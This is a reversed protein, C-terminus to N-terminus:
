PHSTRLLVHAQSPREVAPEQRKSRPWQDAPFSVMPVGPLPVQEEWGAALLKRRVARMLRDFRRLDETRKFRVRVTALLRLLDTGDEQTLEIPNGTWAPLLCRALPLLKPALVTVWDSAPERPPPDVILTNLLFALLTGSEAETFRIAPM